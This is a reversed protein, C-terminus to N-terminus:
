QNIDNEILGLKMAKQIEAEHERYFVPDLLQSHKFRTVQQNNTAPNTGSGVNPQPMGLKLYPKAEVLNKVAEAVGKITGDDEVVIAARDILKTAAELDQIGAKQAEVQIQSNVKFDKLQNTLEGLKKEKETILEQYKKEELLQAEKKKQEEAEFKEAKKAKEILQKFRDHRWLREDEFVKGFEDDTISSPDFSKQGADTKTPVTGNQNSNTNTTNPAGAGDGGTNNDSM